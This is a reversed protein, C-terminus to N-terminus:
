FHDYSHFFKNGWSIEDLADTRYAGNAHQAILALAEIHSSTQSIWKRFDGADNWGGAAPVHTGDTDLVGDDANELPRIGPTEIGSRQCRLYNLYSRILRSYPNSEIAFPTTFGSETEIQYLGPQGFPTFDGQWFTGWRTVIKKLTGRYVAM